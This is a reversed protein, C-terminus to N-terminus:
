APPEEGQSPEKQRKEWEVQLQKLATQTFAQYVNAGGSPEMAPSPLGRHFLVRVLCGISAFNTNHQPTYYALQSVSSPSSPKIGTSAWSSPVLSVQVIAHLCALLPTTLSARRLSVGFDSGCFTRGQSRGLIFRCRFNCGLVPPLSGRDQGARCCRCSPPNWCGNGATFSVTLASAVFPLPTVTVVHSPGKIDVAM